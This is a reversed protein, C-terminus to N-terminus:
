ENDRGKARESADFAERILRNLKSDNALKGNANLATLHTNLNDLAELLDPAAAILHADYHAPFCVVQGDATGVHCEPFDKVIWPPPTHKSM